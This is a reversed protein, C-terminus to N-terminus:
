YLMEKKSTETINYGIEYARKICERDNSNIDETTQAHVLVFNFSTMMLTAVVTLVCIALKLIKNM